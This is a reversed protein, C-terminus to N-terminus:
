VWDLMARGDDTHDSLSMEDSSVESAFHFSDFVSIINTFMQLKEKADTMTPDVTGVHSQWNSRLFCYCFFLLSM